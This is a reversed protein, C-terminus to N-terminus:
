LSKYEGATAHMPLTNILLLETNKKVKSYHHQKEPFINRRFNEL